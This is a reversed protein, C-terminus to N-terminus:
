KNISDLLCSAELLVVILVHYQKDQSVPLNMILLLDNIPDNLATGQGNTQDNHANPVSIKSNHM